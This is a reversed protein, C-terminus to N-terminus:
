SAEDVFVIIRIDSFPGMPRRMNVSVRRWSRKVSLAFADDSSAGVMRTFSANVPPPACIRPPCSPNM